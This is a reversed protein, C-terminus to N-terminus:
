ITTDRPRLLPYRSADQVKGGKGAQAGQCSTHPVMCVALCIHCVGNWSM